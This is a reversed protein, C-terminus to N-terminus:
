AKELRYRTVRIIRVSAVFEMRRYSRAMRRAQARDDTENTHLPTGDVSMRRVEWREWLVVRRRTPKEACLKKLKEYADYEALPDRTSGMYERAADAIRSDLDRADLAAREAPTV